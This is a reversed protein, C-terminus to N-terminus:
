TNVLISEAIAELEEFIEAQTASAVGVLVRDVGVEEFRSILEKDPPLSHM